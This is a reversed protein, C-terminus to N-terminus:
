ETTLESVKALGTNTLEAKRGTRAALKHRQELVPGDCNTNYHRSTCGSHLPRTSSLDPGRHSASPSRIIQYKMRPLYAPQQQLQETTHSPM